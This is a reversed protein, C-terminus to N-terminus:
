YDVFLIYFLLSFKYLSAAPSSPNGQLNRNNHLIFNTVGSDPCPRTIGKKVGGDPRPRTIGKKETNKKNKNKTTVQGLGGTKREALSISTMDKAVCGLAKIKLSRLM